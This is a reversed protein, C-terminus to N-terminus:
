STEEGSRSLKRLWVAGGSAMGVVVLALLLYGGYHSGIKKAFYVTLVTIVSLMAAAILFLDQKARQYFWGTLAVFLVYLLQVFGPFLDQRGYSDAFIVIIMPITLFTCAASGILRPAWRGSLWEVGHSAFLEWLALAVLNMGFLSEFLFLYRRTLWEPELVQVWYLIYGTELLALLLLWLFSFRGILVWGVILAAWGLFLEYADAGTQYVQGFLALFAGVLFSALLLSAKAAMSDLGVYSATMVAGLLAVQVLGFKQFRGMDAWNYAFFFIVGAALMLSGMLLLLTSVFSRWRAGDPVVGAIQLARELAASPLVGTQALRRLHEPSATWENMKLQM